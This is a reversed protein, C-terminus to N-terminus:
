RFQSIWLGNTLPKPGKTPGIHGYLSFKNLRLFDENRSHIQKWVLCLYVSHMTIIDIFADVKNTFNMVGSTVTKARFSPYISLYLNRQLLFLLYREIHIECEYTYMYKWALCQFGSEQQSQSVLVPIWGNGKWRLCHNGLHLYNPKHYALRVSSIEAFGSNSGKIKNVCSLLFHWNNHNFILNM